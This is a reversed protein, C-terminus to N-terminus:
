KVAARYAQGFLDYADKYDQDGMAREARAFLSRAQKVNAGSAEADALTEDVIRRVTELQGGSSEPLLFMAVPKHDSESLRREIHNRLNEERFDVLVQQHGDLLGDILDARATFNADHAALLLDLGELLAQNQDLELKINTEATGTRSLLLSEVSAIDGHIHGTRWYSGRIEADRISDSCLNNNDFVGRVALYGVDTVICGLAILSWPLPADEIAGCVRGATDRVGEAVLTIRLQNFQNGPTPATDRSCFGAAAALVDGIPEVPDGEFPVLTFTWPIDPYDADPFGGPDDLPTSATSGPRSPGSYLEKRERLLERLQRVPEGLEVGLMEFDEDSFADMRSRADDLLWIVQQNVPTHALLEKYEDIMSYMQERFAGGQGLRSRASLSSSGFATAPVIMLPILLCCLRVRNAYTV